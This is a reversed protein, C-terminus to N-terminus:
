WASRRGQARFDSVGISSRNFRGHLDLSDHEVFYLLGLPLSLRPLESQVAGEDQVDPRSMGHALM